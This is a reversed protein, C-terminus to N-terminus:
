SVPSEPKSKRRLRRGAAVGLGALALAITGSVPDIAGGGMGGQPILDWGGRRRERRPQPPIPPVAGTTSNRSARSPATATREAAPAGAASALVETGARDSSDWGSRQATQRRMADLEQRLALRAGRDREIRTANRRAIKWRRYEADNELVIFSAYENAISYGECLRVIEDVLEGRQPGSSRAKDMLRQTRHWAWMREIHPNSDDLEPFEIELSQELPNGLIDGRVKVGVSGGNKYRGYIRIPSGHYLNPLERPEVDYVESGSFLIELGTAAPRTLKRRFAQAQREFDDGRSIFAALGGSDRALQTLLPRNVENGVGICFVRAAAPREGILSLLERQETQETMGDSLIVVNLTRDPDSLSYATSIAPRLVTGGRAKRSELFTRAREKNEDGASALEGFLAQAAVNFTVLEFRDEKRLADLFANLSQRSVGLKGDHAMSGSIDLVFVYDMGQDLESLEEGATLTLLFYGDDGDVRSAALDLGTQPRSLRYAVVLDRSLDGGTAELSAQWYRDTHKVIAFKDSHSPSEMEVIPVESKTEFSLSFKGKASQDLDRRTVTALPYVYTAWDNDVDLEQYYTIRVRQEAGAAIPFIRMEFRKYDVQELLGPDRRTRKYSEYIERARKKEVVEGTMEKGGIWMSFDAVSAGKPVPFTYLAEVIRNETNAFVQDIETVATGNQITVKVEHDRIELVGGFGGEALLLGAAHAEPAGLVLVSALIGITALLEKRKSVKLRQIVSM